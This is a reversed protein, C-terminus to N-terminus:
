MKTIKRILLIISGVFMAVIFTVGYIGLAIKLAQQWTMM